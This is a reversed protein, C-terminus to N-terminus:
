LVGQVQVYLKLHENWVGKVKYHYKKFSYLYLLNQSSFLCFVGGSGVPRAIINPCETDTKREEMHGEQEVRDNLMMWFRGLGASSNKEIRQEKIKGGEKDNLLMWFREQRVIRKWEKIGAPSIKEIRQEIIKGGERDNM